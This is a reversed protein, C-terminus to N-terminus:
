TREDADPEKEAVPLVVTFCSGAGPMSQVEIAGGMSEVISMSISLGLGTGKRVEKTTYFPQFIRQMVEATMGAGDDTVSVRIVEGDRRTALTITGAGNIADGANNILNLFVQGLQDPDLMTEPLDLDYDRVLKINSVHFEREKLGGVVNDLIENVNSPVLRPPSKRSFELLRQTITRARSVAADITGLESNVTEPTWELHFEPDFLDRIVGSTAGIIALPNNIEHAIGAALEGISALKSVHVLEVQLKERAEADAQARRLVRDTIVWVLLGMVLAILAISAIIIKRAQYMEAYAISLPQRVVLAWPTEELWVYAVLISDGNSGIEEVGSALAQSPVYESRGLLEGRDPDVVQYYGSKNVLASDVGKGRSINRLFIYFKDPDLTARMVYPKTGLRQRVAITFHPKHRFGLYIDSVYYNKERGMVSKFWDESSYDKGSLQPFPGAYGIQVGEANCFGVDVFADSAQRLDQLYRDMDQQTPSLPFESGHFLSFINVVREQLFLDITNRQSEALSALHLKGSEKLARDFLFHFYLSLAALPALLALLFGLRLRWRLKGFYERSDGRGGLPGLM